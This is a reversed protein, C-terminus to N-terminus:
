TMSTQLASAAVSAPTQTTSITVSSLTGWWIVNGTTTADCIAFYTCTSTGGTCTAFNASATNVGVSPTVGTTAATWNAVFDLRAYGTYGAETISSGTSASTVTATCLALCAHTPMTYSTKGNLHDVIKAEAYQSLGSGGAIVPLGIGDPSPVWLAGRAWQRGFRTFKGRRLDLRKLVPVNGEMVVLASHQETM